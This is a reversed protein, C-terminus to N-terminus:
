RSNPAQLPRLEAPNIDADVLWFNHGHFYDLLPQNSRGPIERACVVKAHDIDAGNYVWEQNPNHETSYRVLVLHQGPTSELKAQIRARARGRDWPDHNRRLVFTQAAVSALLLLVHFVVLARVLGLGVPKGDVQWVRLRRLGFVVLVFLTATFPAAYHANFWLTVLMGAMGLACVLFCFRAKKNNFLCLLAIAFPIGLEPTLYFDQFRLLKGPMTILIGSWMSSFGALPEGTRPNNYFADFQPNLYSQPQIKQWDFASLRYARDNVVYPMLMPNGTVRWNYYGILGGAFVLVSAMPLAVRLLVIRAGPKVSRFLRWALAAVVPISFILGEYPRSNALIGVGLALLLADRVRQSRLVRPFAGIVLAGGVGAVAGGFYSDIWYNAAGFETAALIGGLLAWKRPVWGQLAWTIAACLCAVSLLVGIWPRGLLQGLALVLGQAPPYKSAYTPFQNVHFTDLYVWMPHPPNALRGHTFTDAALLYSFEDHNHPVPMPMLPWVSFRLVVVLLATGLVAITRRLSIRREWREIRMFVRDGLRPWFWAVVIFPVIAIAAGIDRLVLPELKLISHLM